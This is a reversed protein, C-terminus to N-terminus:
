LVPNERRIERLIRKISQRLKLDAFLFRKGRKALVMPKGDWIELGDTTVPGPLMATSVFTLEGGACEDLARAMNLSFKNGAVSWGLEDNLKESVAGCIYIYHM